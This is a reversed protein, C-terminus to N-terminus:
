KENEVGDAKMAHTLVPGIIMGNIWGTIFLICGAFPTSISMVVTVAAIVVDVFIMAFIILFAKFAPTM